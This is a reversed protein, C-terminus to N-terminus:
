EIKKLYNQLDNSLPAIFQTQNESNKSTKIKLQLSHLFQRPPQEIPQKSKFGYLKDGVVPHNLHAFVVRIQHTRGTMLRIKILSMKKYEKIIEYESLSRKGNTKVVMKVPTKKSRAIPLDIKANKQKLQGYVLALYIKEVQRKKFQAQLYKRATTNRAIVMVGSTDKDLRHVIGPRTTNEDCIDSRFYDLVSKQTSNPTPYVVMGAPKNIVIINKDRYVVDPKDINLDLGKSLQNKKYITVSDNLKIIYNQKIKNGNVTILGNKIESQVTSRSKKTHQSIVLDIRKGVYNSKVVFKLEQM